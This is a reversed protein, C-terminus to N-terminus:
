WEFESIGLMKLADLIGEAYSVSALSTAKRETSYYEADSLYKDVHGLLSQVQNETLTISPANIKMEARVRRCVKIYKEILADIESKVVRGQLAEQPCDGITKLAEVELFHLSGPIILSHPPDGFDLEAINGAMGAKIMSGKSGLRAVGIVLNGQDFGSEFLRRLAHNITMFKNIENDLDLLVLTHLGQDLNDKIGKLTTDVSGKDEFPLTVTRGFKYISLGSEAVATFIGSGHIISVNVGRKAAEIVLSMHTTASLCDGGVLVGIHKGRAEEIILDARDELDYRRLYQVPRLTLETLSAITTALKMTYLEAYLQDCDRAEELARLSLDKEDSLGISILSLTM